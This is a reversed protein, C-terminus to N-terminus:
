CCVHEPGGECMDWYRGILLRKYFPAEEYIGKVLRDHLECVTRLEEESPEERAFSNKELVACFAEYEARDVQRSIMQLRQWFAEEDVSLNGPCGAFRLTRRLNGYLWYIREGTGARQFLKHKKREIARYANVSATVLIGAGLCCGLVLLLASEDRSEEGPVQGTGGETQGKDARDGLTSESVPVFPSEEPSVTELDEPKKGPMGEAEPPEETWPEEGSFEETRKPVELDAGGDAALKRGSLQGICALQEMRNDAPFVVAGPTTEVPVWGVGELYIEAWAHAMRATLVATYGGRGDPYFESSSVAYGTAYRAPIGCYRFALVAASAFHMCYGEHSDFLFYEVFETGEPNEGADLDYSAHRDLYNMIDLACDYIDDRRIGERKLSGTLRPLAEADYGLYNDHVYQAYQRERQEWEGSLIAGGSFGTLDYFSYGYERGRRAVSGDSRVQYADTMQAGGPYLSYSGRGGLEEITIHGPAANGWLSRGAEYSINVLEGYDEPLELGNERYYDAFVKDQRSVWATEVYEEGVFGKLYLARQPVKDVTVRYTPSETYSFVNKRVLEGSVDVGTGFGGAPLASRLAPIWEENVVRYFKTRDDEIAEYSADLKPLLFFFSVAMAGGTLAAACLVAGVGTLPKKEFDRQTLATVIGLICFVLFFFGPFRDFVCAAYFWLVNGILLCLGRFRSWLFGAALVSPLFLYLATLTACWTKGKESWLVAEPLWRGFVWTIHLQYRQSLNDVANKLVVTLGELLEKRFLLGCLIYAMSCLFIRKITKKGNAGIQLFGAAVCFLFIGGWFVTGELSGKAGAGSELTRRWPFELAEALAGVIGTSNIFLLLVDLLYRVAPTALAEGGHRADDRM